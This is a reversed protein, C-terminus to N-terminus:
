EKKTIREVRMQAEGDHMEIRVEDGEGLQTVSSLAEEGRRVIAFGRRMVGDPRHALLLERYRLMKQREREVRLRVASLLQEGRLELRSQETSLRQEARARLLDRREVRLRSVAVVNRAYEALRKAYEEVLAWEQAMREVLWGAVATPTKLPTHAVMDVVSTDKDHGIGTLVPLPFQAVVSSLLYSDFCKLDSVSGGGRIIVVVDFSEERAAIQELADVMSGEAAEGQVVAEFLEVRFAYGGSRLENIFDRYGASSGSAVVAIRQVIRPLAVSRNIDWVGDAKLQSITQQRQRESEGITYTADIDTIRLSLGYLPHHTVMVRVLLKMGSQLREGTQHAFMVSLVQYDQRWMVARAQAIATTSRSGEGKEILELYCHGSTNVKMESIEAVVWLPLPLAGEVAEGIRRQLESLTIHRVSTMTCLYSFHPLLVLRNAAFSIKKVWFSCFFVSPADTAYSTDFNESGKCLM